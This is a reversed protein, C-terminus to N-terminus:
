YRLREMSNYEAFYKSYGQFEATLTAPTARPISYGPIMKQLDSRVSPLKHPSTVCSIPCLQNGMITPVLSRRKMHISSPNLVKMLSYEVAFNLLPSYLAVFM